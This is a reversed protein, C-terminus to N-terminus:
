NRYRLQRRGLKSHLQLASFAAVSKACLAIFIHSRYNKLQQVKSGLKGGKSIGSIGLPDSVYMLSSKEAPRHHFKCPDTAGNQQCGCVLM